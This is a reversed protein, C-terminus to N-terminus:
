IIAIQLVRSAIINIRKGNIQKYAPKMILKNLYSIIYKDFFHRHKFDRFWKIYNVNGKIDTKVNYLLSEGRIDKYRKLSKAIFLCSVEKSIEKNSKFPLASYEYVKEYDTTLNDPIAESRNFIIKVITNNVRITDQAISNLSFLVGIIWLVKVKYANM